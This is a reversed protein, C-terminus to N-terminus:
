KLNEEQIRPFEQGLRISRQLMRESEEEMPCEYMEPESDDLYVDNVADCHVGSYESAGSCEVAPEEYEMSPVTIYYFNKGDKLPTVIQTYINNKRLM